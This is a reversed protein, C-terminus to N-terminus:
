ADNEGAAMGPRERRPFSDPALDKYVRADKMILLFNKIMEEILKIHALPNSDVLLLDALGLECAVDGM